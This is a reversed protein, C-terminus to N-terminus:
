GEPGARSCCSASSPLVKRPFPILAALLHRENDLMESKGFPNVACGVTGHTGIRHKLRKAEVFVGEDQTLAFARVEFSWEEVQQEPV